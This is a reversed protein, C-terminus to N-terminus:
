GDEIPVWSRGNWRYRGDPSLTSVWTRGDWYHTGDPSLPPRGKLQDLASAVTGKRRDLYRVGLVFGGFALLGLMMALSGFVTLPSGALPGAPHGFGGPYSLSLGALNLVTAITLIAIAASLRRQDGNSAPTRPLLRSIRAPVPSRGTILSYVALALVILTIAILVYAIQDLIWTIQAEERDFNCYGAGFSGPPPTVAHCGEPSPSPSVILGLLSAQVSARHAPERLRCCMFRIRSQWSGSDLRGPRATSSGTLRQLGCDVKPLL